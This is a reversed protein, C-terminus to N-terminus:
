PQARPAARRAMILAVLIMPLGPLAYLWRVNPATTNSLIPDNLGEQAIHRALEHRFMIEYLWPLCFCGLGCLFMIIVVPRRM